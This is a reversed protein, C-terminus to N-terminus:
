FIDYKKDPGVLGRYIKRLNSMCVSLQKSTLGSLERVYVFLARKNLYDLQDVNEFIQIIADVCKKESDNKSKLKIELLLNKMDVLNEQIDMAREPSPAISYAEIAYKDAVSLNDDDIYVLRDTRKKRRRSQIILWNKAIVNFYSFANKGRGHDFKHLNEYLNIVCNHKLTDVDPHQKHFGYVFILNESLKELAPRIDRTYIEERFNTDTSEVYIKIAAQTDKTFYPKKGSSPRKIKSRKRVMKKKAM